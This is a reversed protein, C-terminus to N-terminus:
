GFGALGDLHVGNAGGLPWISRRESATFSEEVM